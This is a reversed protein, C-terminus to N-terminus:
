EGDAMEAQNLWDNASSISKIRTGPFTECLEALFPGGAKELEVLARTLEARREFWALTRCADRAMNIVDGHGDTASELLALCHEVAQRQMSLSTAM